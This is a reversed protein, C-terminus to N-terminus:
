SEAPPKSISLLHVPRGSFTFLNVALLSTRYLVLPCRFWNNAVIRNCSRRGIINYPVTLKLRHFFHDLAVFSSGGYVMIGDNYVLLPICSLPLGSIPGQCIRIAEIFSVCFSVVRCCSWCSPHSNIADNTDLINIDSWELIRKIKILCVQM